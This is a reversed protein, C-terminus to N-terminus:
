LGCSIMLSSGQLAGTSITFKDLTGSITYDDLTVTMTKELLVDRNEYNPFNRKLLSLMAEAAKPEELKSLVQHADLLKRADISEVESQEIINHVATGLLAWVMDMADITVDNNRRLYRVQPSDILQTVSCDGYVKHNDSLCATVISDPLNHLNTVTKM